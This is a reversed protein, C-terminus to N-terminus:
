ARAGLVFRLEFFIAYVQVPEDVLRDGLLYTSELVLLVSLKLPLRRLDELLDGFFM